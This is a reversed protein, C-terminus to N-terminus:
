NEFLRGRAISNETEEKKLRCVCGDKRVCVCVSAAEREGRNNEQANLTTMINTAGSGLWRVLRPWEVNRRTNM